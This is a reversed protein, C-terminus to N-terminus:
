KFALCLFVVPNNWFAFFEFGKNIGGGRSIQKRLFVLDAGYKM